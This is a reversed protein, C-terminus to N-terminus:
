SHQTPTNPRGQPNSCMRRVCGKVTQKLFRSNLRSVPCPKCHIPHANDKPTPHIKKEPISRKLKSDFLQDHGSEVSRLQQRQVVSLHEQQDIVDNIKVKAYSADKIEAVSSEDEEDAKDIYFMTMEGRKKLVIIRGEMKMTGDLYCIDLKLEQLLDGGIISKYRVNENDHIWFEHQDVKLL